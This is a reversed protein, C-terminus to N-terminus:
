MGPCKDSLGELISGRANKQYHAAFSSALRAAAADYAAPDKWARRPHLAHPEIGPCENPVFLKLLPDETYSCDNLGGSLVADVITRTMVIDMRKGVGYGGGSWGTNVLYVPVRHEMVLKQFLSLYTDSHCPMFPAGFFRSFTAKPEVIGAETGALKSTYGLFFWLMAQQLSLKAVPPLVGTADATLFVITSPHPGNGSVSAGRLDSLPFAARSNETLRADNVDVSGDPYVMANEILVGNESRGIGFVAEYIDPEKMPNLRILKAYCGNEMNSIGSPSWYHEDDGILARRPDVSLTTKGTGSLGLFLHSAGRADVTASCHLPLVNLTPLLGNMVTFITKKIAGLYSTGYVIGLRRRLDMAIIWPAVDGNKKMIRGKYKETSLEDHPLVLLTFPHGALAGSSQASLPRFMTDAFLAATAHSTITRVPLAYRADAGVCRDVSYLRDKSRLTRLADLFIEDFVDPNIPNNNSQSWDITADDAYQVTYTDQPIRGTAHSPNWLALAGSKTAVAEHRRLAEQMLQSRTPNHLLVESLEQKRLEEQLRAIIPTM